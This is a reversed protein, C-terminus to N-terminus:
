RSILVVLGVISAAFSVVSGWFQVEDRVRSRSQYPIHFWDGSQIRMNLVADSVERPQLNLILTEGDRVLRVSEPDAPLQISSVAFEPGIGGAEAIADAVTSTPDMFFQGPNGVAGTINVRLAVRVDVVPQDYFRSYRETLLERLQTEDLGSVHISGVFPLFVDGNRDVVREGEIVSVEEGAASFLQTTVRDGSRISYGVDDQATAPSASLLAALLCSPILARPLM